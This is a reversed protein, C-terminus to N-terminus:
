MWRIYGGGWSRLLLFLLGSLLIGPSQLFTEEYDVGEKQSFGRAVFRAKYKEISGDAVHKIKYIWKSTVVFKGEPRLVIDWVDNKMISQYEEMMADKWVQQGTAEEFSSPESDIINSMLAVYSSFRQPPRSERFTGRPATHGEADRLTDRLWRPRTDEDSPPDVPDVLEESEEEHDSLQDGTSSPGTSEEVKPAEQEEGDATTERSRRFALDEEFRVDRSVEIHRQGPIYIRYAKSTENYGVFMGKRGSPELKTRKEKPVHIYVPCGFIRLHGIEPKVGTFAEEPTKDELIRHPSMNQVYVTTNCAEAWLMMPLDQDHLMARAVEVITRNKREAVGNQQPNFPVTLERKIGAEKCFDRFENSTYEGGNDSRLVKIKKGTQNEVLARFERFRSFVEDKTKMFFIWTRRSYDDIFTVYYLYGSSSPVSMPGCVDSHVLDLIEKSRSDSSPFAAKANKGLACGRCVGQHEAGFEPLGTVMRRLVPLARYHLHGLRRHWLECLSDSDHVLAQTPQGILRYLSGDRAGIVETSDFSSGRPWALVQGDVFAVAYGRDEM